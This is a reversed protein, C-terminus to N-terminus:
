SAITFRRCSRSPKAECKSRRFCQPKAKTGTVKFRGQEQRNLKVVLHVAGKNLGEAYVKFHLTVDRSERFYQSRRVSAEPYLARSDDALTTVKGYAGFRKGQITTLTRPRSRGLALNVIREAAALYKEMLILALSLVDGINDFGYGSDDSPFDDGPKFNVGILDRITRNYEYRNLRRITVRGPNREKMCDVAALQQDLFRILKVREEATPQPKNAPPMERSQLMQVVKHWERRAKSADADTKITDLAFKARPREGGHCDTCYKKLLPAIEDRYSIQDNKKEEARPSGPQFTFALLFLATLLLTERRPM